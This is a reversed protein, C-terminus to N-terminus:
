DALTFYFTTQQDIESEAWIKGNHRSIIRKVTALGIGIGDFQERHHLRQFAGFLKDVYQMDFGAGNDKVFYITEGNDKLSGFEIRANPKKSSYKWANSLLNEVVIKLLGLDGNVTLGAHIKIEAHQDPFAEQLQTIAYEALESLDVAVHKLTARTIRSLKLLDDILNGMHQSARRVRTLYDLGTNDLKDQYDEILAQSFGDISRLPARLDHSVSFSFAELEQNVAELESTRIKVLKELNERYLKLEEDARKRDIELGIRQGVIRLLEQDEDSFDHPRDDLLCTVAVVIGNNNLAPFGCYSFANHQKLFSAEPFLNAVDHIVRLDKSAEVTACPTIDLSCSGANTFVEGKVYVSLFHLEQGQIESLCVVKVDLLEGIMKAVHVFIDIPDGSLKMSLEYLRKLRTIQDSPSQVPIFHSDESLQTQNIQVIM